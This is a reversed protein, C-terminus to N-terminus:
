CLLLDLYIGYKYSKLITTEVKVIDFMKKQKGRTYGMLRCFYIFSALRDRLNNNKSLEHIIIPAHYVIIIVLYIFIIM